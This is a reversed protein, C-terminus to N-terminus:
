KTLIRRTLSGRNQPTLWLRVSRRNGTGRIAPRAQRSGPVFSEKRVSSSSKFRQRERGLPQFGEVIHRVQDIWHAEAEKRTYRSQVALGIRQLDDLQRIPDNEQILVHMVEANNIRVASSM